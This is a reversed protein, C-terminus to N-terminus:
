GDLYELCHRAVREAADPKAAQRAREAMAALRPRDAALDALVGALRSESLEAQPLLIAADRAALYHANATQHDDVAPLPVLISAIGAAAIETVTMAGARGIVLDAGAYAAAMDDIYDRVDAAVKAARYAAAVQERDAAGTQHLVHVPVRAALQAIAGPVARNLVGAGQSGGFILIRLEAQAGIGRQAPPVLRAIETRVPNGICEPAAAGHLSGPFSGPFAEFVRTALRALVRNTMGAHANQEHILLPRRCLWAAVGGPGSAYGGMGLVVGPKLRLMVALAQLSAFTLLLPALVLRWWGRRRLGSIRITTLEIGAAPVLRNELGHPAGLWHLPVGHARLVDAVALAPYIHGGTGGAM